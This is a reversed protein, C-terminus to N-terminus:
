SVLLVLLVLLFSNCETLITIIIVLQYFKLYKEIIHSINISMNNICIQYSLLYFGSSNLCETNQKFLFSEIIKLMYAKLSSLQLLINMFIKKKMNCFFFSM